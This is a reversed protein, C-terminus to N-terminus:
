VVRDKIMLNNIIYKKGTAVQIINCNNKPSRINFGVLEYEQGDSLKFRKKYDEKNFGFLSCAKEFNEKEINLGPENKTVKLKMTFESKNYSISGCDIKLEFNEEIEKLAKEVETKFTRFNERTFDM